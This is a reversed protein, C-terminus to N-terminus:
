KGAMGLSGITLIAFVILLCCKWERLCDAFRAGMFNQHMEGVGKKEPDLMAAVAVSSRRSIRAVSRRGAGHSPVATPDKTSGGLAHRLRRHCREGVVLMPPYAFFM